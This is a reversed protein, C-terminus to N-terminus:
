QTVNIDPAPTVGDPATNITSQKRMSAKANGGVTYFFYIYIKKLRDPQVCGSKESHSVVGM